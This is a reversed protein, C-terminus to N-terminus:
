YYRLHIFCIIRHAANHICGESSKEPNWPLKLRTSIHYKLNLNVLLILMFVSLESTPQLAATTTFTPVHQYVEALAESMNGVVQMFMVGLDSRFEDLKKNFKQINVASSNDIQKSLQNLKTEMTNFYSHVNANTNQIVNQGGSYNSLFTEEYM